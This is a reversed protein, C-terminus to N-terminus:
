IKIVSYLSFASFMSVTTPSATNVNIIPVGIGLAIKDTVPQEVAFQLSLDFVTDGAVPKTAQLGVGWYGVFVDSYLVASTGGSNSTLSGAVDVVTGPAVDFRLGGATNAANGYLYMDAGATSALAIMLMFM